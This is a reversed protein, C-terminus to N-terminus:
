KHLYDKEINFLIDVVSRGVEYKRKSHLIFVTHVLSGCDEISGSINIQKVFIFSVKSCLLISIAKRSNQKLNLHQFM